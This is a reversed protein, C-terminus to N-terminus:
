PLWEAPSTPFLREEQLHHNTFSHKQFIVRKPPLHSSIVLVSFPSLSPPARPIYQFIFLCVRALRRETDGVLLTVM